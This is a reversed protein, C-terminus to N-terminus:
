DPSSFFLHEKRARDPYNILVARYKGKFVFLSGAAAGIIPFKSILSKIDNLSGAGGLITMPLSCEARCQAVLEFDYGSELGDRDINNIIYEGAGAAEVLGALEMPSETSEVTGNHTFVRYEGMGNIRVDAVVAISQGGVKSAAKTILDRDNIAASSLAVKEVGLGIIREIQEVSKIGGGYALPMRCEAALQSILRYNPEQGEVTADIDLVLLEDVEKENYIRVANVPDGVYTPSGFQRTKVLGGQHVLLCPIIRARLM